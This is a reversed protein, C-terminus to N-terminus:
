TRTNCYSELTEPNTVTVSPVVANGLRDEEGCNRDEQREGYVVRTTRILLGDGGVM